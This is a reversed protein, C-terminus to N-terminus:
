EWIITIKMLRYNCHQNIKRYLKNIGFQTMNLKIILKKYRRGSSKSYFLPPQAELPKKQLFINFCHILKWKDFVLSALFKLRELRPM